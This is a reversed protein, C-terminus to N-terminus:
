PDTFAFYQFTMTRVGSAHLLEFRFALSLLYALYTRPGLLLLLSFDFINVIRIDKARPRKSDAGVVRLSISFMRLNIVAM